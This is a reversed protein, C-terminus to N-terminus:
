LFRGYYKRRYFLFSPTHVIHLAYTRQYFLSYRCILIHHWSQLHCCFHSKIQLKQMGNQYLYKTYLKIFINKNDSKHKKTETSFLKFMSISKDISYFNISLLTNTASINIAMEVGGYTIQQALISTNIHYMEKCLNDLLIAQYTHSFLWVTKTCYILYQWKAKKHLQEAERNAWNVLWAMAQSLGFILFTVAM